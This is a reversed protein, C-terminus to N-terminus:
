SQGDSAQASSDAVPPLNSLQERAKDAKDGNPYAALYYELKTAAETIEGQDLAQAADKYAAEAAKKRAKPTLKHGPFATAFNEFRERAEKFNKLALDAEAIGFAALPGYETETYEDVVEQYYTKAANLARIRYYVLGAEYTKHALRTRGEAIHAQAEPVLESEPHDIVFDELQKLAEKLDTQDLGYHDPAAEFLCVAKMFQANTAYVSSPYNQLLRNFEVSALKYDKQGFYSLGLYYQATDVVSEGPYNYVIAQFYEIADLYKEAQYKEMGREYLTIAPLNNLVPRGGCAVISLIGIAFVSYAVFRGYYKRL